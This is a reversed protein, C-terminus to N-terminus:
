YATLLERAEVRASVLEMNTVGQTGYTLKTMINAGDLWASLTASNFGSPYQLKFPGVIVNSSIVEGLVVNNFLGIWYTPTVEFQADAGSNVNRKFVSGAGSMGIGPNALRNSKNHIIIQSESPAQGAAELQQVNDKFVINWATGLNASLVQNATYVGIGGEQQYDALAVDYAIEWNVGTRGGKPATTQKWSVSDLGISNPLTQYVAMSWTDNTQNDFNCYYTSM